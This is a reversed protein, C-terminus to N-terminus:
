TNLLGARDSANIQYMLRAAEQAREDTTYVRVLKVGHQIGDDYLYADEESVGGGILAGFLAGAGAGAVVSVVVIALWVAADSELGEPGMGPLVLTATAFLVGLIAGAVAGLLAGAAAAEKAARGSGQYVLAEQGIDATEIATSDFGAGRLSECALAGVQESDFLRVVLRKGGVGRLLIIEDRAKQIAQHQRQVAARVNEPLEESMAREYGRVAAREGRTAESLAANEKNQVGLTLATRIIIQGRHIIGPL